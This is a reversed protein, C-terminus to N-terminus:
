LDRGQPLPEVLIAPLDIARHRAEHRRAPLPKDSRMATELRQGRELDEPATVRDDFTGVSSHAGRDGRQPGAFARSQPHAVPTRVDGHFPDLFTASASGLM